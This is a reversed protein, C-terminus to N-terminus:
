EDAARLVNDVTYVTEGHKNKYSRRFGGLNVIIRVDEGPRGLMRTSTVEHNGPHSYADPAPTVMITEIIPFNEKDTGVQQTSQIRGTLWLTGPKDIRKEAKESM